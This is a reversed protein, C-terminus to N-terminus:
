KTRYARRLLVVALVVLLAALIALIFLGPARGHAKEFSATALAGPAVAATAWALASLVNATQFKVHPMGAFGAVVPISSRLPGLFYGVCIAMTGRRELVESARQLLEPRGALPWRRGAHPGLWVGLAFSVTCGTAAGMAAWIVVWWSVAGIGVLPSVATLITGAPIFFSLGVFSGALAIAFAIPGAWASYTQAFEAISQVFNL